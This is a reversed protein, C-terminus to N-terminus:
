GVVATAQGAVLVKAVQAEVVGGGAVLDATIQTAMEDRILAFRALGLERTLDTLGRFLIKPYFGYRDPGLQWVKMRGERERAIFDGATNTDLIAELHPRITTEAYNTLAAVSSGARQVETVIKFKARVAAAM